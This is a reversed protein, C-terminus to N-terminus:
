KFYLIFFLEFLPLIRVVCNNQCLLVGFNFTVTIGFTLFKLIILSVLFKSQPLYIVDCSNTNCDVFFHLISM